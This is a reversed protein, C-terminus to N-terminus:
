RRPRFCRGLWLRIVSIPRLESSFRAGAFSAPRRSPKWYAGLSRPQLLFDAEVCFASRRGGPQRRARARHMEEQIAAAKRRAEPDDAPGIYLTKRQGGVTTNAKLYERGKVEQVRISGVPLAVEQLQQLLDAYLTLLAPRLQKM